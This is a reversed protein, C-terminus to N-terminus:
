QIRREVKILIIRSIINFIIVILFLLFAAFLLASDYLPVSLMEGYNNAILAPLPYGPDLPSDPIKAVNGCVMMVAMTEGFARSLGLVVGAIIGPLAKRIVVKKISQWPTAGLSLTAERLDRSVYHLVEIHVHLIVPIIMLSLVIGGTLLTYGSTSIKCLPGIVTNIFPVVVIVGWLGYIVSPIGSLIDILSKIVKLVLGSAYESVYIAAALSLPVAIILAIITVILTSIIFALFGFEGKLPHWSSSFLLKELPQSELLPQSKICLIVFMCVVILISVITTCFMFRSVINDKIHRINIM